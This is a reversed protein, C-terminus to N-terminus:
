KNKLKRYQGPAVGTHRKFFSNFYYENAFGLQRSIKELSLKENELLQEADRVKIKHIYELLTEGTKNKFVRNIYKVNFHCQEAVDKCTLLINKNDNIYQKIMDIRTDSDPEISKGFENFGSIRSAECILDFIRNKMVTRSFFDKRETEKLIEELSSIVSETMTGKHYERRSLENYIYGSEDSIFTVSLRVFEDSHEVVTHSVKPSFLIFEGEDVTHINGKECEYTIQGSLTFHIEFFSHRHRKTGIIKKNSESAMAQVWLVNIREPEIIEPISIRKLKNARSQTYNSLIM